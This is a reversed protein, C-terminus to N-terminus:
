NYLTQTNIGERREPSHKGFWERCGGPHWVTEWNEPEGDENFKPHEVPNLQKYVTIDLGM